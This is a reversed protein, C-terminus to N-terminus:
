SQICECHLSVPARRCEISLKITDKGMISTQRERRVAVHLRKWVWMGDHESRLGNEVTKCCDGKVSDLGEQQNRTLHERM